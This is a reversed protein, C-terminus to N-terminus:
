SILRLADAELFVWDRMRAPADVTSSIDPVSPEIPPVKWVFEIDTIIV